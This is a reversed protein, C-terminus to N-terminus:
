SLLMWLAVGALILSFLINIYRSSNEKTFQSSIVDGLITWLTFAILNNLTFITTIWLILMTNSAQAPPLFQSYLLAIIVYAKPNLLLIMAGDIFGAPLAEGQHQPASSKYMKWALWLIYISGLIKLVSFAQPFQGKSFAFGLGITFTILWTAIHYGASAWITARYGFRAGNAAFFM